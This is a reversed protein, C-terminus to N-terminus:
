EHTAHRTIHRLTSNNNNNSDITFAAALHPERQILCFRSRVFHGFRHIDICRHKFDCLSSARATVTLPQHSYASWAATDPQFQGFAPPKQTVCFREHLRQPRLDICQHATFRKSFALHAASSAPSSASVNQSIRCLPFSAPTVPLPTQPSSLHGGFHSPVSVRKTLGRGLAPVSTFFFLARVARESSILLRVEKRRRRRQCCNRTAVSSVIGGSVCRFAGSRLQKLAFKRCCAHM